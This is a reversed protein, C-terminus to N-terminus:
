QKRGAEYGSIIKDAVAKVKNSSIAFGLSEFSNIKFNYNFYYVLSGTLIIALLVISAIQISRKM